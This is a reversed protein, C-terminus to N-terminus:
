YCDYGYPLHIPKAGTAKPAFTAECSFKAGKFMDDPNICAFTGPGLGPTGVIASFSLFERKGDHWSPKHELSLKLAGGFHVIRASARDDAFALNGNLDTRSVQIGRVPVIVSIGLTGKEQRVRLNKYITENVPDRIDGIDWDMVDPRKIATHRKGKERLNGNSNRDVYLVDGDLVLWVRTKAEPGFVLLCYKPKNKYAPEKAITRDIDSLDVAQAPVVWPILTGLILTLHTVPM